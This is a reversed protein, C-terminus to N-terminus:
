VAVPEALVTDADIILPAQAKDPGVAVGVRDFNDIVV